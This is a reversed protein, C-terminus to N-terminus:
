SENESSARCNAKNGTGQTGVYKESVATSYTDLELSTCTLGAQLCADVLTSARHIEVEYGKHTSPSFYTSSEQSSHSYSVISYM